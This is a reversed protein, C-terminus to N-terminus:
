FVEPHQALWDEAAQGLACRLTTFFPHLRGRSDPPLYREALAVYAALLTEDSQGDWAAEAQRELQDILAARLDRLKQVNLGLADCTREAVAPDVGVLLCADTQVEIEGRARVRWLTPTTPLNAPHLILADLNQEGKKRGCHPESRPLSQVERPGEGDLNGGDQPNSTLDTQEDKCCALLNDFDLAWNHDSDRDRKPHFHEIECPGREPESAGRQDNGAALGQECYACLGRQADLLADRVERYLHHHHARRLKKWDASANARRWQAFSDPEDARRVRKM